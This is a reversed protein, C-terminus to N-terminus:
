PRIFAAVAADDGLDRISDYLLQIVYRGNHVYGCPENQVVTYNYAAKLLTADFAVYRNAFVAEGPDVVGNANTDRFWYPYVGPAYVIPTGIVNDAYDQIQAYLTPVLTDWIEFYIGEFADGDGDFDIGLTGFRIDRFPNDPDSPNNVHVAHCPLCYSTKPEFTHNNELLDATRGMHCKICTDRTSIHAFRGVYVNDGYEYGGQVATGFLTAAAAFYHNNVFTLTGEGGAAIAADVQVKSARGQHCAMCMNSGDALSARDGSPFLVNDLATYVSREDWLTTGDGAETHCAGCSLVSGTKAAASVAGDLAFDNFGGKSHCKACSAPVAGDADWHRFPEGTFDAHGSRSWEAIVQNSARGPTDSHCGATFCSSAMESGNALNDVFNVSPWIIHFTHNRIDGEQVGGGIATRIASSATKPMHCKSCRGFGIAGTPNYAPVSTSQPGMVAEKGTHLLVADAVAAGGIRVDNLTLGFFSAHCALCLTNDDDRTDLTVGAQTITDRIQHDDGPDADPNGAAKHPDHCSFCTLGGVDASHPGQEIDTWQQHHQRSAIYTPFDYGAYWGGYQTFFALPPVGYYASSTNLIVFPNGATNDVVSDGPLPLQLVGSVFRAPYELSLPAAGSLITANGEGRSHCSGCVQNAFRKGTAGLAEFNAPNIIDRANRSAAHAAGPGHCQECGINLESYGTVAEQVETGGYSTTVAQVTLGTQHCGACRNEWSRQTGLNTASGLQGFQVVLEDSGYAETFRPATGDYWHSANYQVYQRTRENYQFPLIYYSKGIRTHFRQKWYGNGGQVRQIEYTVAGITAFFRGNAASLQPANDLFSAFAATTSLDLGDEFDNVGNNDADNVFIAGGLEAVTKLPANHLSRGWGEFQNPHCAACTESGAYGAAAALVPDGQQVVVTSTRATGIQGERKGSSGCGAVVLALLAITAYPAIREPHRKM